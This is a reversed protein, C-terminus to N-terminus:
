GGSTAAEEIRPEGFLWTPEPEGRARAALRAKILQSDSIPRGRVPQQNAGAAVVPLAEERWWGLLSVVQWIEMADVQQPSNAYPYTGLREYVAPFM